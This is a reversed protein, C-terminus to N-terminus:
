DFMQAPRGLRGIPRSRDPNTDIAVPPKTLADIAAGPLLEAVRAKALPELAAYRRKLQNFCEARYPATPIKWTVGQGSYRVQKAGQEVALLNAELYPLYDEAVMKFFFELDEPVETLAGTDELDSPRTSWLRTVWHALHPANERMLWGATPDCFFHRFFPGFLGYDAECPRDGFLFPRRTFVDDLERLSDLYLAEIAQATQRTVGDKKLYVIRQRNLILLRRFPFTMRAKPFMARALRGSLLRADEEKAWRYYLAPRWYWEDFLDELLLSCFATAPEEPHLVPGSDASEFHSIIATTDTLWSGDPAQVCPIQVIGTTEGSAKFQKANTEILRYDIGKNKFYAELKGTFYSYSLGYLLYPQGTAGSSSSVPSSCCSPFRAFVVRASRM